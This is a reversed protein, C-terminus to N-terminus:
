WDGSRLSVQRHISAGVGLRSAEAAALRVEQSPVPPALPVRFYGRPPHGVHSDRTSLAPHCATFTHCVPLSSSQRILCTTVPVSWNWDTAQRCLKCQVPNNHIYSGYVLFRDIDPEPLRRHFSGSRVHEPMYVFAVWTWSFRNAPRMWVVLCGEIGIMM